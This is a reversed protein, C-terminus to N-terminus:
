QLLAFPLCRSVQISPFHLEKELIGAIKHMPTEKLEYVSHCAFEPLIDHDIIRCIEFDSTFSRFTGAKENALYREMSEPVADPEIDALTVPDKGNADANQEEIMKADTKRFMSYEYAGPTVYLRETQKLDEWCPRLFVHDESMVWEDPWESFRPLWHAMEQRSTVLKRNPPCLIGSGTLVRRDRVSSKTWDGSNRKRVTTIKPNEQRARELKGLELPFIDNAASFPYAFATGSVGHHWPNRLVYSMATQMHCNGSIESIFFGKEGFRIGKHRHYKANFYSTYRKRVSSIFDSALSRGVVADGAIVILHVHTSMEADALVDIDYQWSALAIFNLMMGVDQSDRFM